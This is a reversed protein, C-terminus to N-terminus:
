STTITKTVPVGAAVFEETNTVATAGGANGGGLFGGNINTTGGGMGQQRGTALAASTTWTSGDYDQQNTEFTFTPYGRGGGLIAGATQTGYGQAGQRGAPIAGGATWSSGNWEETATLTTTPPNRGGCSVGATQTGFGSGFYRATGTATIATWSTGNYSEAVTSAQSGPLYANAGIAATQIGFASRSRCTNNMDNGATWTSGNYEASDNTYGGSGYGGFGLAATQTGTGSVDLGGLPSPLNAENTWSTGNYSETKASITPYPNISGGFALGATQTGAGAGFFRATNLNGGSAFSATTTVSAVKFAYTANNYWVDGITAPSPDSATSQIFDGAAAPFATVSSISSDTINSASVTGSLGDTADITGGSLINNAIGRTIVGM